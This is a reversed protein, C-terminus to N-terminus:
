SLIDSPLASYYESSSPSLAPSTNEPISSDPYFSSPRETESPYQVNEMAECLERLKGNTQTIKLITRYNYFDWYEGVDTCFSHYEGEHDYFGYVDFVGLFDSKYPYATVTATQFYELWQHILDPNSTSYTIPMRRMQFKTIDEPKISNIWRYYDEEAARLEEETIDDSAVPPHAWSLISETAFLSSFDIDSSTNEMSPTSSSISSSVNQQSMSCSCLCLVFAIVFAIYKKM